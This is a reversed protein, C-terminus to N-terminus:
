SNQKEYADFLDTVLVGNIRMATLDADRIETGALTVGSIKLGSLNANTISSESLNINHFRSKSLNVDDFDAESLNTDTFVAETLVAFFRANALNVGDFNAGTMDARQYATNQLQPGDFPNSSNGTSM